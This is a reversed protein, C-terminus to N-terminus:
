HPDCPQRTDIANKKTYILIKGQDNADYSGEILQTKPNIM